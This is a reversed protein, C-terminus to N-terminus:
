LLIIFSYVSYFSNVLFTEMLTYELIKFFINLSSRMHIHMIIYFYLTHFSWYYTINNRLPKLLSCRWRKQRLLVLTERFYVSEDSLCCASFVISETLTRSHYSQVQVSLNLLKQTVDRNNQKNIRRGNM